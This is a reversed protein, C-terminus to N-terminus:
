TNSIIKNIENKFLLPNFKKLSENINFRQIQELKENDSLLYKLKTVLDVSSKTKILYGNKENIVDSLYNHNTTIIANGFRMAEIISIPFAETKYYTPLVFISSYELVQTKAIGSISGLYFIRDPYNEKLSMYLQNFKKEIKKFDSVEDGMPKGAIKVIVNPYEALIQRVAELFILIGKTEILNSLFLIQKKKDSMDININEYESPYANPVVKVEMKPFTIFQDKMAPLLVISVTIQSYSWKILGKLFGSKEYFDIFDAGHLHNIVKKNFLKCLFLLQFDKLFGLYSRTCTFYVKDFRKCIFVMPLIFLCYLTNLTRNDKFKTTNFLIKSGEFGSFVEKFSISQGTILPPYPGFFLVKTKVM